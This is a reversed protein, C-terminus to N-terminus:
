MQSLNVILNYTFWGDGTSFTQPKATAADRQLGIGDTYPTFAIIKDYKVRFQKHPGFFYIHKNTIGMVGTDTHITETREIPHGRFSSTRFYVGKAVRVSVGKSGGVYERKTKQEYYDVDNFAYVLQESKMLNFPIDVFKMRNPLTGEMVERLIAGKVIRTFGNFNDQKLSFHDMFRILDEEEQKSLFDDEFAADVAKNGGNKILQDIQDESICCESAIEQIDSTIRAYDTDGGVSSSVIDVIQSKGENYRARCERHEKRFLGAKGGCFICVGM